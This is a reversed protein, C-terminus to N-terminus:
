RGLQATMQFQAAKLSERASDDGASGQLAGAGRSDDWQVVITVRQGNVDVSGTGGPISRLRFRWDQLDRAAVSAGEPADSDLALSYDAAHGVNVRMREVIDHALQAAQGRHISSQGVRLGSAQLGALGLLGISLVVTAVLVEVLSVGGQRGGCAARRGSSLRNMM